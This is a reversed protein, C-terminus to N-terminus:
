VRETVTEGMFGWLRSETLRVQVLQGTLSLDGPSVVQKHQPTKGGLLGEGRPAPGEVLVEALQGVEAANRELTIDNQMTILRELRALKVQKPVQDTREAAVTGPRISYAFTFAAEFRLREYLRLSAEFDEETEGPFGVMMDTTLGLDPVAQRLRDIVAVYEAVTYGRRMELLLADTGAQIPLHLHRCVKPLEVFARILDDDVDRPHCTTFRIRLLGDLDNLQRLLEYFTARERLDKGYALVNQGLLTVERTGARVLGRVEQVIEAIPRSTERGRVYPVICYSCFNTCGLIVPVFATLPATASALGCRVAAPDDELDTLLLRREGARLRDVVEVIHHFCRTGLVANVNPARSLLRKGERQAMCGVVVLHAGARLPRLERFEGLLSYVKHEPKERVSCTNIIVLDSEQPADVEEWGAHDLVAALLRSDAENMQCGFTIITYQM